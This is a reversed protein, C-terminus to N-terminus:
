MVKTMEYIYAHSPSDVYEGIFFLKVTAWCVNTTFISIM